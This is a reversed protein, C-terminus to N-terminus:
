QDALLEHLVKADELLQEPKAERVFEFIIHRDGEAKRIRKLFERWEDKGEKFPRRDISGDEAVVWHFAHVHSLHPIAAELEVIDNDFSGGTRPQWYLKLEPLGVEQLLQHASQRTDTFTGGHYELAININKERAALVAKRLTDVVEERYAPDATESNVKRGAWVRIVPAGLTEATALVLGFDGAETDCRYYSGYSCVSLGAAETRKRIDRAHELNDPPVHVDGGWEIADLGAEKAVKIIADPDLERFTVTTLGTYLM